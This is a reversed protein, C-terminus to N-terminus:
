KEMTTTINESAKFKMEVADKLDGCRRQTSDLKATGQSTQFRMSMQVFFCGVLVQYQILSSSSSSRRRRRRGEEEEEEVVVVVVITLM